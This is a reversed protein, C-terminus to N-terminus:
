VLRVPRGRSPATWGFQGWGGVMESVGWPTCQCFPARGRRTIKRLVTQVRVWPLPRSVPAPPFGRASPADAKEKGVWKRGSGGRSHPLPLPLHTREPIQLVCEATRGRREDRLLGTANRDGSATCSARSPPHGCALLAGLVGQLRLRPRRRRGRPARVPFHFRVSEERKGYGGVCGPIGSSARRRLFLRTRPAAAVGIGRHTPRRGNEPAPLRQTSRHARRGLLPHPCRQRWKPTQHTPGRPHVGDRRDEGRCRPAPHRSLERSPAPIPLRPGERQGAASGGWWTQRRVQQGGALNGPTRRRWRKFSLNQANLSLGAKSERVRFVNTCSASDNSQLTLTRFRLDSSNSQGCFM